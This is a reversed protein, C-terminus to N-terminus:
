RSSGSRSLEISGLPEQSAPDLFELSGQIEQATDNHGNIVFETFWEQWPGVDAASFTVKLNPFEISTPMLTAGHVAGVQNEVIIQKISFADVKSVRGCPLDGVVLRFNSRLWKKQKTNVVARIADDGKAYTIEETQFSIRFFAAEKSSADMAPITIEDILADRFHRYGKAKNDASASVVSGSKRPQTLDLSAAIWEALPKGM